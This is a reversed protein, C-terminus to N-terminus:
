EEFQLRWSRAAPAQRLKRLARTEIQRVRERGIGLTRAVTDLTQREVGDFGFRRRLIEEERPLLTKLIHGLQETQQNTTVAELPTQASTDSIGDGLRGDGDIGIPTELSIPDRGYGRLDRVQAATTELEAALEDDLAERGLDLEMRVMVRNQRHMSSLVHTPIRITRAQESLARVIAQRIWWTAYTSFKFGKRHEFKDVARMLGINGEQILDLLSLRGTPYTRAVSVVLRLNSQIMVARAREGASDLHALHQHQEDSALLHQPGPLVSILISTEEVARLVDELSLGSLGTAREHLQTAESATLRAFRHLSSQAAFQDPGEAPCLAGALPLYILLRESCADLVQTASPPAAGQILLRNRVAQVYAGTELARGLDQEGERSLLPAGGIERLYVGVQDNPAADQVVVLRQHKGSAPEIDNEQQM